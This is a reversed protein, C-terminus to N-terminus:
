PAPLEVRADRLRRELIAIAHRTDGRQCQSLAWRAEPDTRRDAPQSPSFESTGVYRTYRDALAGCYREAAFTQAQAAGSCLLAITMAVTSRM